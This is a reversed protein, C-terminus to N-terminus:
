LAVHAVDAYAKAYSFPEKEIFNSLLFGETHKKLETLRINSSHQLSKM